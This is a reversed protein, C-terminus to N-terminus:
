YPFSDSEFGSQEVEFGAWRRLNSCQETSSLFFPCYFPFTNAKNPLKGIQYFSVLPKAKHKSNSAM